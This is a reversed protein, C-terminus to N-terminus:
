QVCLKLEEKLPSRMVARISEVPINEPAELSTVQALAEPAVSEKVQNLYQTDIEYNQPLETVRSAWHLDKRIEFSLASKSICLPDVTSYKETIALSHPSLYKYTIQYPQQREFLAKKQAAVMTDRFKDKLKITIEKESSDVVEFTMVEESASLMQVTKCDKQRIQTFLGMENVASVKYNFTAYSFYNIKAQPMLDLPKLNTTMIAAPVSFQPSQLVRSLKELDLCNGSSVDALAVESPIVTEEAAEEEEKNSKCAVLVLPLLVLLLKKSVNM